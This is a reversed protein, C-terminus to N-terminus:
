WTKDHLDFGVWAQQVQWRLWKGSWSTTTLGFSRGRWVVDMQRFGQKRWDQCPAHWSHAMDNLKHWLIRWMCIMKSFSNCTLWRAGMTVHNQLIEHRPWWRRNVWGPVLEAARAPICGIQHALRDVLLTAAPYCSPKFSLMDSACHKDSYYPNLQSSSIPGMRSGEHNWVSTKGLVNLMQPLSWFHTPWIPWNDEHNQYPLLQGPAQELSAVLQSLDQNLMGLYLGNPNGPHNWSPIWFFRTSSVSRWPTIPTATMSSNSVM